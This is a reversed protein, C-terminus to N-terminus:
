SGIGIYFPILNRRSFRIVYRLYRKFKMSKQEGLAKMKRDKLLSRFTAKVKNKGKLKLLVKMLFKKHSTNNM